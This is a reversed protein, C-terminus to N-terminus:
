FFWWWWGVVVIVGVGIGVGYIGEYDCVGFVCVGFGGEYRVVVVFWVFM